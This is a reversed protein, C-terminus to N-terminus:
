DGPVSMLLYSAGCVNVDRLVRYGLDTPFAVALPSQLEILATRVHLARLQADVENPELNAPIVGYTQVQAFYAIHNIVANTGVMPASLQGSITESAEQLCPNDELAIADRLPGVWSLSLLPAALLLVTVLRGLAPRAIRGALSRRAGQLCAYFGIVLLPVIALYKRLDSSETLMYGGSYLGVTLFAWGSRLRRETDGWLLLPLIMLGLLGLLPAAGLKPLTEGAWAVINSWPRRIQHRLNALSDLPSWGIDPYYQPLPDEWPFLVDQPQDCLQLNWCPYGPSTPGVIARSIASSTTITPYGYRAALAAFYPLTAIGLVAIAAGVAAMTARTNRTRLWVLLGSMPLHVLLFPFSYYKAYYALAGVLGAVLGYRVPHSLLRPETIILFYSGLLVAGLLDPTVPFFGRTLAILACAAAVALRSPRDLGARGALLSALLVWVLGVLRVLGQFAAYPEVGLAIAPALLWSILPSWYGRIVPQGQAFSRAITLYSLGDPNIQSPSHVQLALATYAALILLTLAVYVGKSLGPGPTAANRHAEDATGLVLWAFLFMLGLTGAHLALTARADEFGTLQGIVLLLSTAALTAAFLWPTHRATRQALGVVAAVFRRSLLLLPLVVLFALVAAYFAFLLRGRWSAELLDISGMLHQFDGRAVVLALTWAASLVVSQAPVRARGLFLWLLMIVTLTVFAPLVLDPSAGAGVFYSLQGLAFALLVLPFTRPQQFVVLLAKARARVSTRLLSLALVPPLLLIVLLIAGRLGFPEAPSNAWLASASFAVAAWSGFLLLRDRWLHTETLM